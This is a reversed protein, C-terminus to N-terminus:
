AQWVGGHGRFGSHAGPGCPWSYVYREFDGATRAAAAIVDVGVPVIVEPDRRRSKTVGPCFFGVRSDFKGMGHCKSSKSKSRTEWRSWM